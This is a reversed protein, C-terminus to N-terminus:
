AASSMTRPAEVDKVGLMRAIMGERVRFPLKAVLGAMMRADSTALYRAKPRKATVVRAITEAVGGVPGPKQEAVAEGVAAIHDRYLAAREPDVEAAEQAAAAKKFIATDLLGPVILSVPIGWAALETRLATSMSHLAAKSASIPANFPM